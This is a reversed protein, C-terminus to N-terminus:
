KQCKSCLGHFTMGVERLQFNKERKLQQQISPFYDLFIEEAEGCDDCILFHHSDQRNSPDTCVIFKGSLSHILNIAVMRELIRYVTTLDIPRGAKDLQSCIEASSIPTKTGALIAAINRVGATVRWGHAIFSKHVSELFENM